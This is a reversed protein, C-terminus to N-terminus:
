INNKLLIRTFFTALILPYLELAIGSRIAITLFSPFTFALAFSQLFVIKSNITKSLYYIAITLVTLLFNLIVLVMVMKFSLQRILAFLVTFNVEWPSVVLCSNISDCQNFISTYVNYDGPTLYETTISSILTTISIQIISILKEFNKEFRSNRILFAFILLIGQFLFIIIDLM